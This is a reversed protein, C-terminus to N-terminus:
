AKGEAHAAAFEKLDDQWQPMEYIGTMKMMMNDLATSVIAGNDKAVTADALSPAYGYATLIASAFQHRTAVGEDSAHYIGYEQNGIMSIIFGVLSDVSTPTGVRDLPADFSEGKAAKDLVYSMYDRGIGYVWSSRIILHRPNLERTFNEGALKSKGYVTEPTPTDFENKPVNRNGCFVDDTSLYIIKANHQRAVAALNRAGLANVRYAEIEHTECYDADSLSACNIIIGPRYAACAQQVAEMDTIDVDKDTAIVKNDVDQSLIEALRSGTRGAAGVIWISNKSM